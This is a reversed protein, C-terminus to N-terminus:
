GSVCMYRGCSVHAMDTVDEGHTDGGYNSSGWVVVSGDNKLGACTHTGCSVQTVGNIDKGQTSGSYSRRCRVVPALMPQAVFHSSKTSLTAGM